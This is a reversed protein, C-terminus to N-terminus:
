ITKNKMKKDFRTNKRKGRVNDKIKKQRVSTRKKIKKNGNNSFPTRVKRKIKPTNQTFSLKSKDFSDFVCEEKIQYKKVFIVGENELM